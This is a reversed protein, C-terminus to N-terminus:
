SIQEPCNQSSARTNMEYGVSEDAERAVSLPKFFMFSVM